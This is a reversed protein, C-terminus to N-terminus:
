GFPNRAVVSITWDRDMRDIRCSASNRSPTVSLQVL